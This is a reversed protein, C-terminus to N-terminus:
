RKRLIPEGDTARRYLTRGLSVSNPANGTNLAKRLAPSAHAAKKAAQAEAEVVKRTGYIPRRMDDVFADLRKASEEASTPARTMERRLELVEPGTLNTETLVPKMQAVLADGHRRIQRQNVIGARSCETHNQARLHCEGDSMFLRKVAREGREHHATAAARRASAAEQEESTM